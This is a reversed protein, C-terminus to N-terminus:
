KSTANSMEEVTVNDLDRTIAELENQIAHVTLYAQCCRCNCDEEHELPYVAIQGNSCAVHRLYGAVPVLRSCLHDLRDKLQKQDM